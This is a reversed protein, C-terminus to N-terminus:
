AANESGQTIEDTTGYPHTAENFGLKELIRNPIQYFEINPGSYTSIRAYVHFPHSLGEAAAEQAIARFAARSLVSPKDPGNWVLFYGEGRVNRAFLHEHAGAPLRQLHAGGRESQDWHSTLLLDIMEERELALVAAADVKAMLKSFRYGGPLPEATKSVVGKKSVREGSVARRLREATLSRAYPDGREPRGQEILVFRREAGSEQNLELVAHGTTGSGAFPDLVIGKPPCWIHIIKKFLRMPKVTDFAHGRGVIASLENIGVQSHGSESHEWSTSGLELPEEYDDDAWFTTPVIGQKVDKLYKKMGFTGLGEDRWHAVPWRGAERIRLAAERAKLLAAHDTSFSADLPVPAGKIVLAKPRGDKLDKEVYSSGWAELWAKMRRRESGWHRGASPYHLEGTFPSQIAYVMGPHTTEGRATLDGPKWRDPDGDPSLYRANMEETRPLLNTKSREVNKAYVLVYETTTSIRKQDNRPAYSKQWNIIAIRNGEGFMQDLLMGLRFLERHDICIALVGGPRLMERMMWLRPTMFRLWKSHRSGDDAPVLKGLDPDNPDEDWRDNYRFDLGTNYPPDTLILDVQGRYKYLSVLAQLNEGEVLLNQAQAQETGISLKKEIRQSRPQVRRVIQWPPSQGPYTLRIGGVDEGNEGILLQLLEERSLKEYDTM